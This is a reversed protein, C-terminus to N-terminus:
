MAIETKKGRLTTVHALVTRWDGAYVKGLQRSIAQQDGDDRQYASERRALPQLAALVSRTDDPEAMDKAGELWELFQGYFTQMM